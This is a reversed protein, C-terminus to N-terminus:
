DKPQSSYQQKTAQFIFAILVVLAITALGLIIFPFVWTPMIHMQYSNYSFIDLIAIFIVLQPLAIMNGMLAIIKEPKIRTSEIQKSLISLKTVGWAIAGALLTLLVQPLLAWVMAMGRNFWQDPTGDLEFHYAVEAPLLRYFYASIFISLLLIAAPLTIYSWRFSLGESKVMAKITKKGHTSRRRYLAFWIAGAAVAAIAVISLILALIIM